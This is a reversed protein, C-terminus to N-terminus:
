LFFAHTTTIHIDWTLIMNDHLFLSSSSFSPHHLLYSSSLLLSLSLSSFFFQFFVSYLSPTTAKHNHIHAIHYVPFFFTTWMIELSVVRGSPWGVDKLVRPLFSSGCCCFLSLFFFSLSSCFFFMRLPSARHFISRGDEGM